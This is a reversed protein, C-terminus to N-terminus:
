AAKEVSDPDGTGENIFSRLSGRILGGWADSCVDFCEVEPALGVHTFRVETQNGKPSIEFVITTGTWETKDKLFSLTSDVVQWVVKEGPVLEVVKQRSQHMDKYRYTWEEGLRDTQGVIDPGVLRAPRQDRRIGGNAVQGGPHHCHFIPREHWDDKILSITALADEM